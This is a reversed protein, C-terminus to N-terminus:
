KVGSALRAPEKVIKNMDEVLAQSQQDERKNAQKTENM